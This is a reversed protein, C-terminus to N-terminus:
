FLPNLSEFYNNFVRSLKIPYEENNFSCFAKREKAETDGYELRFMKEDGIAFNLDSDFNNAISDRFEQSAIKIYVKNPNSKSLNVIQTQFTNIQCHEKICIKLVTDKNKTFEVLETMFQNDLDAIDGSLNDDYIRIIKKSNKFINTLVINAHYQNSNKFVLNSETLALIEVSKKYNELNKDM